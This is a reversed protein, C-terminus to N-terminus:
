LGVSEKTHLRFGCDPFRGNLDDVIGKLKPRSRGDGVNVSRAAASSFLLLELALVPATTIDTWDTEVTYGSVVTAGSKSMFERIRDEPVSLVNCGGFHVWCNTCDADIGAVDVSHDDSLWIRGEEGHTALYLVSGEKCRPNWEHRIWYNMEEVTACDRRAYPWQGLGKLMQLIPEVSPEAERKGYNWHGEICYIRKELQM